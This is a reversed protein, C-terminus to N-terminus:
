ISIFHAYNVEMLNIGFKLQKIMEVHFYNKVIPIMYLVILKITIAKEHIIFFM